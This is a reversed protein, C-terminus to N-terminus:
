RAERARRVDRVVRRIYRRLSAELLERGAHVGERRLRADSWGRQRARRCLAAERRELGVIRVAVPESTM